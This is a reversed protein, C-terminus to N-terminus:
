NETKYENEQEIGMTFIDEAPTVVRLGTGESGNNDGFANGKGDCKDKSSLDMKMYREKEPENVGIRTISHSVM